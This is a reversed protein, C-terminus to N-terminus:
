SACAASEGSRVGRRPASWEVDAKTPRASRPPSRPPSTTKRRRSARAWRMACSSPSRSRARRSRARRCGEVTGQRRRAPGLFDAADAATAQCYSRAPRRRRDEGASRRAQGPEQRSPDGQEREDADRDLEDAIDLARPQTAAIHMALQRGLAALADGQRGQEGAGGARRDQRPRRGVKNHVYDAVVGEAVPLTATRRVSMNEGITAILRRSRIRSTVKKGPYTMALLKRRRRRGQPALSAINRVMDQFQENRAVFDTESNVEVIAGSKGQATVGILGEAAIRGAKKAAKSLGKKRLWDVAEEIDGKTETLAAKCDMMGAGTKDRLEKVLSATITM